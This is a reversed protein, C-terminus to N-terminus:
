EVILCGLSLYQNTPYGQVSGDTTYSLEYRGPVLFSAYSGATDLHDGIRTQGSKDPLRVIFRVGDLDALSDSKAVGNLSITGSLTVGPIDVDLELPTTGVAIGTKIVASFNSPLNGPDQPAHFVLDYTGPFALASYTDGSPTDTIITGDSLSLFYQPSGIIRAGNVTVKGSILTPKPVQIDLSVPSSGIVVGSQLKITSHPVDAIGALGGDFYVDYTGPVVLASYSGDPAMLPVQDGAATKLYLGAGDAVPVPAGNLTVKGSIATADVNVNVTVPATGIDIGTKIVAQGNLLANPGSQLGTYYLDYRNGPIVHASHTNKGPATQDLPVQDPDQESAHRLILQAQNTAPVGNVTLSVTVTNDPVDVDLSLTKGASVVIGSRVMTRYNRPIAVSAGGGYFADYTGAIVLASFSGDNSLTTGLLVPRSTASSLELTGLEKGSPDTFVKGAITLTGSVTGVPVDIDLALPETGVVIGSQLVVFDSGPLVVSQGSHHYYLDYTGPAILASYSGDGATINALPAYDNAANRLVLAGAEGNLSGTFPAGNITVTGSVQTALLRIDGHSCGSAGAM